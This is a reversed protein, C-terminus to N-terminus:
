SVALLTGATIGDLDRRYQGMSMYVCVEVQSSNSSMLVCVEISDVVRSELPVLRLRGLGWCFCGYCGYMSLIFNETIVRSQRALPRAMAAGTCAGSACIGLIPWRRGASSSLRTGTGASFRSGLNLICVIPAGLGCGGGGFFPSQSLILPIKPQDYITASKPAPVTTYSRLTSARPFWSKPLFM